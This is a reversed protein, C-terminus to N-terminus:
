ANAPNTEKPLEQTLPEQTPTQTVSNFNIPQNVGPHTTFGHLQNLASQSYFSPSAPYYQPCSQPPVTYIPQQHTPENIISPHTANLQHKFMFSQCTMFM